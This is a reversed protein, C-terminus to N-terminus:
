NSRELINLLRDSRDLAGEAICLSLRYSLERPRATRGHLADLAEIALAGKAPNTACDGLAAVYQSSFDEPEPRSWLVFAIAFGAAAIALMGIKPITSSGTPPRHPQTTSPLPRQPKTPSAPLEAALKQKLRAREDACSNCYGYTNLQNFTFDDHCGRCASM